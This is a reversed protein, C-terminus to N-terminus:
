FLSNYFSLNYNLNACSNAGHRRYNSEFDKSINYLYATLDVFFKNVWDFSFMNKPPKSFGIHTFDNKGVWAFTHPLETATLAVECVAFYRECCSLQQMSKSPYLKSNEINM